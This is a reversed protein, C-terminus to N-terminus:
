GRVPSRVPQASSFTHQNWEFLGQLVRSRRRRRSPFARATSVEAALAERLVIAEHMVTVQKTQVDVTVDSVGALGGLAKEIANACGDCVIDPVSFTTQM